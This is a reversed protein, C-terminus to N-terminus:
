QRRRRGLLLLGGLSALAISGPEPVNTTVLVNDYRSLPNTGGNAQSNRNNKGAFIFTDYTTLLSASSDVFTDLTTGSNVDTFTVTVESPSSREIRVQLRIPTDLSWGNPLTKQEGSSAAVWGGALKEIGYEAPDGSSRLAFPVEYV